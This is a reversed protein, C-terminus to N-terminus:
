GRRGNWRGGGNWNDYDRDNDRGDEFRRNDFRQNGRGRNFRDDRDDDDDDEWKNRRNNMMGQYGYGNYYRAYKRRYRDPHAYPCPDNIFVKYGRALDYNRYYGPLQQAYIWQGRNDFYVFQARQLDYYADIEPLYYFDGMQQGPIGWSPRGINLNVNVRLQAETHNAYLSAGVAFATALLLNKM